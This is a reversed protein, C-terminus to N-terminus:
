DSCSESEDDDSISEFESGCMLFDNVIKQLKRTGLKSKLYNLNMKMEKIVNEKKM